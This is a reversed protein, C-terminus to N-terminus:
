MQLSASLGFDILGLCSLKIGMTIPDVNFKVSLYQTTDYMKTEPVLLAEKELLWNPVLLASAFQNAERERIDDETMKDSCRLFLMQGKDIFFSSNKSHLLFHGLEHAIIFDKKAEFKTNVVIFPKKDKYFFMGMINEDQEDMKAFKVIVRLREACKLASIPAEIQGSQQLVKNAKDEIERLTM